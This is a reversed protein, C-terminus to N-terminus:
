GLRRRALEIGPASLVGFALADLALDPVPLGLRPRLLVAAAGPAVAAMPALLARGLIPLLRLSFRRLTAPLTISFTLITMVIGFVAGLMEIRPALGTTLWSVAVNAIGAVLMGIGFIKHEGVGLLSYYCPLSLIYAGQGLLMLRTTTALENVVSPGVARGVWLAFILNARLAIFVVAPVALLGNLCMVRSILKPVEGIRGEGHLQGVRSLLVGLLAPFVVALTQVISIALGMHGAAEAGGCRWSAVFKMSQYLVVSGSTFMVTSASYHLMERFYGFDIRTWRFAERPLIRRATYSSLFAPLATGLSMFFAFWRLDEGLRFGLLVGATLIGASLIQFAGYLDFRQLGALVSSFPQFPLSLATVMVTIVLTAYASDVDEPGVLSAVLPEGGLLLALLLVAAALILYLRVNTFAAALKTFEARATQYSVQYHIAAGLGLNLLTGYATAAGVLQWIGWARQGLHSIAVPTLVLVAAFYTVNATVNFLANRVLSVRRGSVVPAGPALNETCSSSREVDM